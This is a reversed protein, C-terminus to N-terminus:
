KNCDSLQKLLIKKELQFKEEERKNKEQWYIQETKAKAIQALMLDKELRSKEKSEKTLQNQLEVQQRRMDAIEEYKKVLNHSSTISPRRRRHYDQGRM